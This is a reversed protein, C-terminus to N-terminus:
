EFLSGTCEGAPYPLSIYSLFLTTWDSAGSKNRLTLLVAPTGLARPFLQAVKNRLSIFVSVQGELQKELCDAIANAKELLHFTFGLPGRIATPAKPGDRTMLSKAIPWIAQPTVETNAIKAEWWELAKRSTLRKNSKTVCNVATKCTPNRTEQWLKRLRKKLELLRDLGPLDTNVDSLAVKRTSL